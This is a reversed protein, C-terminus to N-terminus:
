AIVQALLIGPTGGQAKYINQLIRRVKLSTCLLLKATRQSLKLACKCPNNSFSLLVNIISRSISPIYKLIVCPIVSEICIRGAQKQCGGDCFLILWTILVPHVTLMVLKWPIFTCYPPLYRTPFPGKRYMLVSLRYTLQWNFILNM